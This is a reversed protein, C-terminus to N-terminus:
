APLDKIHIDGNLGIFQLAGHLDDGGFGLGMPKQDARGKCVTGGGDAAPCGAPINLGCHFTQPCQARFDVPFGESEM